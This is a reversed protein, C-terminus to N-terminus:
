WFTTKIGLYNKFSKFFSNQSKSSTNSTGFILVPILPYREFNSIRQRCASVVHAEETDAAPVALDILSIFKPMTPLARVVIVPVLSM